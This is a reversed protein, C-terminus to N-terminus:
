CYLRFSALLPLHDSSHNQNPLLNVEELEALGVLSLRGLLQLGRGGPLSPPRDDATFLIYDVTIASRSHCTTVEPKGGHKLVHGYVSQLRLSHQISSNIAPDEQKPPDTDPSEEVTLCSIARKPRPQYQCQQNIGLSEPWIPVSLVRGGRGSDGQGSVMGITLSDYKLSGQTLFSYLPSWPTSNFDGCMVVPYASGDSRCSLRKVEALLMALQALKIDGRRPNYLLHTNAVCLYTSPDSQSTAHNPRLLLVLAVNDRDLFPVHHRLYEIPHSSVLSFRQKKFVVACGDPKNGTRRKYECHYGLSELAPKIQGYYHDEQVEQLCLVDADHHSIERLLGYLRHDWSLARPDCHHYLYHNDQLLDQSLINYSLVSFDFRHDSVGGPPALATSCPSSDWYRYLCQNRQHQLRQLRQDAPSPEVAGNQGWHSPGTTITGTTTTITSSGTNTTSSGGRPIEKRPLPKTSEGPGPGPGGGGGGVRREEKGQRWKESRWKSWSM